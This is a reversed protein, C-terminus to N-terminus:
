RSGQTEIWEVLEALEHPQANAPLAENVEDFTLSGTVRGRAVLEAIKPEDM